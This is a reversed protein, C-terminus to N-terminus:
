QESDHSRNLNLKSRHQYADGAPSDDPRRGAFYNRQWDKATRDDRANFANRTRRWDDFEAKLDPAADIPRQHLSASELWGLDAPRVMCVPENAEFRVPRGIDTLKWNMTFTYPAWDTEVVGELAHAGPKPNNPLGGVWLAVGPTTRFLWPIAFTLVGGGFHTLVANAHHAPTGPDLSLEVGTADAAGTWVAEFGVPSRLAWGFQNAIVLPLCRYPFGGAMRDMWTRRASAPEITWGDIAGVAYATITLSSANRARTDAARRDDADAVRESAHAGHTSPQVDSTEATNPTRSADDPM